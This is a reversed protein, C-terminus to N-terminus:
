KFHLTLGVGLAPINGVMTNLLAPEIKLALNDDIDYYYLHADVHADVIQLAYIVGGIIIALDRWKRFTNQLVILQNTQYIGVYQDTQTSDIRLFFADLYQRYLRNNDIALYTCVGLGAYVIPMKWYKGNYFQGASPLAVALWTARSVSHPQNTLVPAEEVKQAQAKLTDNVQSHSAFSFLAFFLLFFTRSVIL